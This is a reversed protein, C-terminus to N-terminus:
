LLPVTVLALQSFGEGQDAALRYWRAAEGHDVPRGEGSDYMVGLRAQAPAYNREALSRLIEEGQEFDQSELMAHALSLLTANKKEPEMANFKELFGPKAADLPVSSAPPSDSALPYAEWWPEPGPNDIQDTPKPEATTGLPAAPIREDAALTVCHLIAVVFWAIHASARM